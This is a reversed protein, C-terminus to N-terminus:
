QKSWDESFNTSYQGDRSRSRGRGFNESRYSGRYEGRFNQDRYNHVERFNGRRFDNKYDQVYQSRGRYNQRYQARGRYSMRRHGSNSRYRNKYKGQDYYNGTQGRRKGQCM